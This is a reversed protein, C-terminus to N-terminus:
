QTCRSIRPGYNPCHFQLVKAITSEHVLRVHLKKEQANKEYLRASFFCIHIPKRPTKEYIFHKSLM